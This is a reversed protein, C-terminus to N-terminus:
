GPEGPSTESRTTKWATFDEGQFYTVWGKAIAFNVTVFTKCANILRTHMKLGGEGNLSALMYFLIQLGFISKYFLNRKLSALNGIFAGILLLPVLFKILKHSSLEFSFIGYRFINLLKRNDIIARLTRNTIRVQRNFEGEQDNATEEFCFAGKEIVTRHGQAVISLPIVLDNIDTTKLPRYLDKRVAFIAGDAGVCSAIQSELEKTIKELRSYIGVSEVVTDANSSVYRTYGTVCGVTSDAFSKVIEVVVKEHYLSNADSFIIIEGKAQPVAHNLCSTKGRRGDVRLTKVGASEYRSSIKETRDTSADSVVVIELKEKPYALGLTNEIKRAIVKEENYASIILTVSPMWHKKKIPVKYFLTIIKLALPYGIYAYIVSLISAWFIIGSIMKM